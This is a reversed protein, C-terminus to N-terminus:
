AQGVWVVGVQQPPMPRRGCEAGGTLINTVWGYGSRRNGAKDEETENATGLVAEHCSPRGAQVCM